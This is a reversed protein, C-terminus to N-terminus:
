HFVCICSVSLDASVKPTTPLLTEDVLSTYSSLKEYVLVPLVVRSISPCVFPRVPLRFVIAFGFSFPVHPLHHAVNMLLYQSPLAISSPHPHRRTILATSLHLPKCQPFDRPCKHYLISLLLVSAFFLSYFGGPFPGLSLPLFCGPHPGHVRSFSVALTLVWSSKVSVALSLVWAGKFTSAM